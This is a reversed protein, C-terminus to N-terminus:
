VKAELKEQRASKLTSAWWKLQDLMAIATNNFNEPIAISGDEQFFNFIPLAVHERIPNMQLEIANSRLQEIARVGGNAGYGVFAVPKNNWEPNLFDLANKLIAAPGRNYEPTIIVFGDLGDVRASWELTHKNQYQRNSMSPPVPEDYFPLDVEALDIYDFEIGSYNDTVSKFWETIKEGNRGPRSTGIIIGIKLAM